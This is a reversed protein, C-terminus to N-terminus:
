SCIVHYDSFESRSKLLAVHLIEGGVPAEGAKVLTGLDPSPTSLPTPPSPAHSSMGGDESKLREEAILQFLLPAFQNRIVRGILGLTLSM